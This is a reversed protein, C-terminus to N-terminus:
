AKSESRLLAKARKAWEQSYYTLLGIPVDPPPLLGLRRRHRFQMLTLNLATAAEPTTMCGRQQAILSKSM